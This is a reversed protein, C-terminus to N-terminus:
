SGFTYGGSLTLYPAAEVESAHTECSAGTTCQAIQEGAVLFSVGVSLRLAIGRMKEHRYEVEGGFHSWLASDISRNAYDCTTSTFIIGTSRCNYASATSHFHGRSMGVAIGPAVHRTVPLRAHGFAAVHLNSYWGM